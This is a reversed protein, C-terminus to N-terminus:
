KGLSLKSRCLRAIWGVTCAPHKLTEMIWRVGIHVVPDKVHACINICAIACPSTRAGYSPRCQFNVRPSFDRAAGPLRVQTLPTGTGSEVLQAADGDVDQMYSAVSATPLSLIQQHANQCSKKKDCGLEKFNWELNLPTVRWSFNAM